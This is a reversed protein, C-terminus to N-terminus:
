PLDGTYRIMSGDSWHSIYGIALHRCLHIPVGKYTFAETPMQAKARDLLFRFVDTSVSLSVCQLGALLKEDEAQKAEDLGPNM